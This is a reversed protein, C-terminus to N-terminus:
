VAEKRGRPFQRHELYPHIEVGQVTGTGDPAVLQSGDSAQSVAAAYNSLLTIAAAAIPANGEIGVAGANLTSCAHVWKKLSRHKGAGFLGTKRPLPWKVLFACEKYVGGSPIVTGAGALSKEYIMSGFDTVGNLGSTTYVAARTFTVLSSHVAKEAAVIGDIISSLATDTSATTDYLYVNAWEESRGQFDTKKYIAFYRLAM